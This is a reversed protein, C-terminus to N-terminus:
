CRCLCVVVLAGGEERVAHASEARRRPRAAAERAAGGVRGVGDDNGRELGDRALRGGGEDQEADPGRRCRASSQGSAHAECYRGGHWQTHM